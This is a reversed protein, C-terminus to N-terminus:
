SRFGREKRHAHDFARVLVVTEPSGWDNIGNDAPPVSSVTGFEEAKYVGVIKVNSNTGSVTSQVSVVAASRGTDTSGTGSLNVQAFSGLAGATVSTTAKVMFVADPDDLVKVAPGADKAFNITNYTGTASSQSAPKHRAENPGNTSDIWFFGTAVGVPRDGASCPAIKGTATLKVLDGTFMVPSGTSCQYTSFGRSDYGAGLQKSPTLGGKIVLGAM